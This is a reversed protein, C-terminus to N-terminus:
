QEHTGSGEVVGVDEEVLGYLEYVLADFAKYTATIQRQISEHEHPTKAEPVDKHLKLM